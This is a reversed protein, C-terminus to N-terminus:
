RPVEQTKSCRQDDDDDAGSQHNIRYDNDNDGCRCARCVDCCGRHTCDAATAHHLRVRRCARVLVSSADTAPHGRASREGRPVELHAGDKACQIQPQLNFFIKM